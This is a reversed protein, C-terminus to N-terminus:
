KAELKYKKYIEYFENYKDEGMIAKVDEPKDIVSIIKDSINLEKLAKITADKIAIISMNEKYERKILNRFYLTLSTNNHKALTEVWERENKTVRFNILSTEEKEM